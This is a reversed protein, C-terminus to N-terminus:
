ANVERRRGWAMMGLLGTGLLALTGPEPVPNTLSAEELVVDLSDDNVGWITFHLNGQGLYADSTGTFTFTDGVNEPTWYGNRTLFVTSLYLREPDDEYAYQSRLSVTGVEDDQGPDLALEFVADPESQYKGDFLLGSGWRDGASWSNDQNDLIFTFLYDYGTGDDQPTITYSLSVAGPGTPYVISAGAAAISIMSALFVLTLYKFLKM